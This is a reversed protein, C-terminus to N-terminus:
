NGGELAALRTELNDIKALAEQLAATLLPVLKSQDIGQYVPNGNEDVGDKEGTVCEPVVTQAEHAIFGDVTKDPDTIFNFRHVQLQNIRDVAGTLPIVNEKLRYDSSTNYATASGTLAISGVQTTSRFFGVSNVSGTGSATDRVVFPTMASGDSETILRGNTFNTANVGVRGDSTIRMRETSNTAFIMHSSGVTRLDTSGSEASIRFFTSSNANNRFLMQGIEPSSYARIYVAEASSNATIDLPASPSTTGVGLRGSSDVKVRTTGGTNISVEDTGFSIGTNSDVGQVTPTRASGDVGSVATSGNLSLAM